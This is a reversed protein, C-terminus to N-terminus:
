GRAPGAPVLSSGRRSRTPPDLVREFRGIAEHEGWLVGQNARERRSPELPGEGTMREGLRRSERIVVAEGNGNERVEAERGLEGDGAETEQESSGVCVEPEHEPTECGERKELHSALAHSPM